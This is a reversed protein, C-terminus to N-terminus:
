GVGGRTGRRGLALKADLVAAKARLRAPRRRAKAEPSYMAAEREAALREALPADVQDLIRRYYGPVPRKRGEIVIFDDAGLQRGYQELYKRGIGPRRSMTFFPLERPVVVGNDHVYDASGAEKARKDRSLYGALYRASGFDLPSVEVFGKPWLAEAQRSSYRRDGRENKGAFKLDSFVPGFLAYHYHPRGRETGYEGVGVYRTPGFAHRVRKLYLAHAEKSVSSDPAAHEPDLTNTVFWAAGPYFLAEHTIRMAWESERALRCHVCQRCSIPISRGSHGPPREFVIGGSVPYGKLPSTCM